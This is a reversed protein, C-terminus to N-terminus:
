LLFHDGLGFAAILIGRVPEMGIEKELKLNGMAFALIQTYHFVQYKGGLAPYDKTFANLSHPSVTIIKEVGKKNFTEINKGALEEFLPIEGMARVDNGDSNIDQALIGFSVGAKHLLGAVSRAIEQGRSDYASVDDTFLLYEQDSFAEVDMGASWAARKKLQCDM